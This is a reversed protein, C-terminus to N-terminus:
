TRSLFSGIDCGDPIVFDFLFYDIAYFECLAQRSEASILGKRSPFLATKIPDRNSERGIEVTGTGSKIGIMQLIDEMESLDGVFIVRQDIEGHRDLLFNAQPFAHTHCFQAPAIQQKVENLWAQIRADYHHDYWALTSEFTFNTEGRNYRMGCEAWASLFREIPDRVFGFWQRTQIEPDRISQQDIEPPTLDVITTGGCKWIHIFALDDSIVIAGYQSTIPQYLQELRFHDSIRDRHKMFKEQHASSVTLNLGKM